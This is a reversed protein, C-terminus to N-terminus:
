RWPGTLDIACSATSTAVAQIIFTRNPLAAMNELLDGHYSAGSHVPCWGGPILGRSNAYDDWVEIPWVHVANDAVAPYADANTAGLASSCKGHTYRANTISSGLQSYNRATWSGTNSQALYFNYTGNSTISCILVCGYADASVYSAIDGFLLGGQYAGTGGADCFFYVIRGDSVLTWARNSSSNSKYVYGGGSLQTDTPFPGTGTDVDTMAEYGRCRASSTATDDIRLYLRTGTVDDSRYAAKNTGSFAKSFGAPARKATITGSATQDSIGTTAFTFATTSTVTVRWDGNLGSPSAGAIRIVPGTSGVMAFQHGASVTVTAVNSAVVLSDVSVSGFGDVLCADLVGILAGATNALSPAGSMASTYYKVATSM